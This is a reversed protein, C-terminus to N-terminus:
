NFTYKFSFRTSVRRGKESRSFRSSGPGTSCPAPSRPNERSLPGLHSCAAAPPQAQTGAGHGHGHSRPWVPPGAAPGATGPLAARDRRPPGAGLAGRRGAAAPPGEGGPGALPDGVRGGPRGGRDGGCSRPKSVREAERAGNKKMEIGFGIKRLLELM